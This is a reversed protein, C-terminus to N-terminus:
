RKNRVKKNGYWEGIETITHITFALVWIMFMGIVISVCALAWGVILPLYIIFTLVDSFTNAQFKESEDKGFLLLMADAAVWLIVVGIVYSWWM